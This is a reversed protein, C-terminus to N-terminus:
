IKMSENISNENNERYSQMIMFIGWGILTIGFLTSITVMENRKKVCM